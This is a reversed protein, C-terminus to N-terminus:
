QRSLSGAYTLRKRKSKEKKHISSAVNGKAKAELSQDGPGTFLNLPSVCAHQHCNVFM